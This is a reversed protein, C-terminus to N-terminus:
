VTVIVPVLVLGAMVCEVVAVNLKTPKVIAAVEGPATVAPWDAVEVIVIAARLPNPPVTEKVSVTGDPRVQPIIVGALIVPDPVAVTDHEEGVAPVKETPTAPM